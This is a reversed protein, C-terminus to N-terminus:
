PSGMRGHVWVIDPVLGFYLVAVVSVAGALLVTFMTPGDKLHMFYAVVLGAKAAAVAFVAVVFARSHGAAGLALSALLAAVLVAWIAVYRSTPLHTSSV